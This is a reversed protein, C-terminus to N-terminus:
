RLRVRPLADDRLQQMDARYRRRVEDTIGAYSDVYGNKSGKQIISYAERGIREIVAAKGTIIGLVPHMPCEEPEMGWKEAWRRARSQQEPTMADYPITRKSM